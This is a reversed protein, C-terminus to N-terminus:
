KTGRTMWRDFSLRDDERFAILVLTAAAMGLSPFFLIQNAGPEFLYLGLPDLLYKWIAAAGGVLMVAQAPYSVRRFLGLICLTGIILLLIGWILQIGSAAGIGDYYKQSLGVGRDPALVRVLGWIVLLLGTSVRLFLLSFAKMAISEFRADPRFPGYAM